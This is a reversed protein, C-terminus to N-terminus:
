KPCQTSACLEQTTAETIAQLGQETIVKWDGETVFQMSERKKTVLEVPKAAGQADLTLHAKNNVAVSFAGPSFWSWFEVVHVKVAQTDSGADAHDVVQYGAKRYGEAISNAVLQAVTKGDPLLVDGMAMGYSNRKRGLARQTIATDSIDKDYKLSPIDASPPKAEFSREDVATIAVKPGTGVAAGQPAQVDVVSRTNVCGFLLTSALMVASINLYKM